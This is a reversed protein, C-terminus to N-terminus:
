FGKHANRWENEKKVLIEYCEKCVLCCGGMNPYDCGYTAIRWGSELEGLLKGCDGCEVKVKM